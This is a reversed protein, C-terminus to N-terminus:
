NYFLYFLIHRKCSLLIKYFAYICMNNLYDWVIYVFGMKSPRIMDVYFMGSMPTNHARYNSFYFHNFLQKEIGYPKPKDVTGGLWKIWRISSENKISVYNELYNYFELFIKLFYKSNRVFRRPIKDLDQSTLMWIVAKNGILNDTTIGVMALPKGNLITLSLISKNLGMNLADAPAMHHSAYIEHRDSERLHFKLYDVDNRNSRRVQIGSQDYYLNTEKLKNEEDSVDYAAKRKKAM